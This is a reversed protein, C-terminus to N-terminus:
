LGAKIKKCCKECIMLCKCPKSVSAAELYYLITTQALRVRTPTHWKNKPPTVDIIKGYNYLTKTKVMTVINPYKHEAIYTYYRPTANM